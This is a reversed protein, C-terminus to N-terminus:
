STIYINNQNKVSFQAFLIIYYNKNNPDERGEPDIFQPIRVM